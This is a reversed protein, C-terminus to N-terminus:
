DIVDKGIEVIYTVINSSLFVFVIGILLGGMSSKMSSKGEASAFMYKLGLFIIGAFSAYTVFTNVIWMISGTAAQWSKAGVIPSLTGTLWAILSDGLYFFVIALVFGPLTEAVQSRGEASSWIYKVGLIVTAVAFVLNGILKIVDLVDGLIFEEVKDGLALNTGNFNEGDELVQDLLSNAHVSVTFVSVLMLIVTAIIFKNKM